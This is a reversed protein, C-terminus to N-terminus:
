KLCNNAQISLFSVSYKEKSHLNKQANLIFIKDNTDYLVNNDLYVEMKLLMVVKVLQVSKILKFLRYM